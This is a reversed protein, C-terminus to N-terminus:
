SPLANKLREIGYQRNFTRNYNDIIEGPTIRRTDIDTQMAKLERVFEGPTSYPRVHGDAIFNGYGRASVAHAIVPIGCKLADTIRIKIGSGVRTPCLAISGQAVIDLIDAPDPVLEVGQKGNCLAKIEPTPNQGTIIIRYGPPILPYLDNFFHSIGDLNQLNNLSGSIVITKAQRTESAQPRTDNGYRHCFLGTTHCAATTSGYEMLFQTRDDESLFLNTASKRYATKELRRVHRAFLMRVMRGCTEFKFYDPEFNHHLTVAPTGAPLFKLLSGATTSKDFFCLNYSNGALLTRVLKQHRHMQGNFIGSLREALPRQASLLIRFRPNAELSAPISAAFRDYLCIDFRSDPFIEALADLYLRTAHCGGGIGWPNHITVFLISHPKGTEM